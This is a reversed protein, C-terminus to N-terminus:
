RGITETFSVDFDNAEISVYIFNISKIPRIKIEIFLQQKAMTLPTNNTNDLKINFEAIAGSDVLGQLSRSIDVKLKNRTYETNNEFLGSQAQQEVMRMIYIMVKRVQMNRQPINATYFTRDGNLITGADTDKFSNISEPYLRDQQTTTSLSMIEIDQPIVGRRQGAPSYQLGYDADVRANLGAMVFNSPILREINMDVDYVKCYSDVYDTYTSRGRLSKADALVYDIQESDINTRTYCSLRPSIQAKTFKSKETVSMLRQASMKWNSEGGGDGHIIYGVKANILLDYGRYLGELSLSESDKGGTLMVDIATKLQAYTVPNGDVLARTGWMAGINGSERTDLVVSLPQKTPDVEDTIVVDYFTYGTGASVVEVKLGYIINDPDTKDETSTIKLQAGEGDGDVTILPKEWKETPNITVDVGILEKETTGMLDQTPLDLAFIYNSNFNIYNLYYTSLQPNADDRADLSKSLNTFTELVAGVRGTFKGQRDVVLVHIQDNKVGMKELNISTSPPADFQARYTHDIESWNSSDIVIVGISNGLEGVYRASFLAGWDSLGNKRVEYDESNRIVLNPLGKDSANRAKEDIVRVTALDISQSFSFYYLASLYNAFNYNNSKGFIQRFGERKTYMVKDVAGWTYNGVIGSISRKDAEPVASAIIEAVIVDPHKLNDLILQNM